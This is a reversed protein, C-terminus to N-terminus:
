ELPQTDAAGPSAAATSSQTHTTTAAPLLANPRRAHAPHRCLHSFVLHPVDLASRPQPCAGLDPSTTPSAPTTAPSELALGHLRNSTTEFSQAPNADTPLTCFCSSSVRGAAAADISQRRSLAGCSKVSDWKM